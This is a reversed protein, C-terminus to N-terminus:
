RWRSPIVQSWIRQLSHSLSGSSFPWLSRTQAPGERISEAISLPEEAECQPHGQARSFLRGSAMDRQLDRGVKALTSRGNQNHPGVGNKRGRHEFAYGDLPVGEPRPDIWETLDRHVGKAILDSPAAIPTSILQLWPAAPALPPIFQVIAAAVGAVKGITGLAKAM